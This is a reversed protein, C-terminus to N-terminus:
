EEHSMHNRYAWLRRYWVESALNEAPRGFVREADLETVLGALICRLLPTRWGRMKEIVPFNRVPDFEWLSFEPLNGENVYWLYKYGIKEDPDLIYVSIDGQVQGPIWRLGPLLTKLKELFRQAEMPKGIRALDARLSDMYTPRLKKLAESSDNQEKLRATNEAISLAPTNECDICRVRLGDKTTSDRNFKHRPLIRM